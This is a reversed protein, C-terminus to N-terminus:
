EKNYRPHFEDYEEKVKENAIKTYIKTTAIDSHGLLFQITRLDAGGELLHTAFSHRLTHPSINKSIGKIMMQKKIMKFFSTRDLIKGRTSLFLYVNDKNKTFYPRVKLYEKLYSMATDNIPVIREKSGKGKTNIIFNVMDIDSIKINLLESVRLGTAYMLELMAKNRINIENDLPIDLLKDIEEYTLVTPLNKNEKPRKISEVVNEKIYGMSSLFSHLNNIVTLNHAITRSSKNDLTKLYSSVDRGKVKDFSNIGKSILYNKYADIELKYSDITLPSLNKDVRLYDIFKNIDEDM